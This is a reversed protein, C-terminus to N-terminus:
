REEGGDTAVSGDRVAADPRPPRARQTTSPEPDEDPGLSRATNGVVLLSSTAMAVAALLPTIVGLVAAPVAVANYCFAWALNERVRRRTAALTDLARDVAALDRGVLVADAADAALETGSAVAIGLDAAALAPADNSGDGVMAVTGEPRLRRVTETKGAPPLGAYVEDIGSAERFRDAAAGEDGTLVVVRRDESLRAVADQWGPRPEDAAVLVGRVAGDCGVYMALNGGEDADIYRERLAEPVEVDEFLSADGVTVRPGGEVEGSVGRGPHAEYGDVSADAGSNAADVVASAVPHDSRAEVAAARALLTERDVGPATEVGQLAMEGTTLTGTKDLAIVDVQQATEVASGDTLVVGDELLSRTGAAIALPTALGLACPCSVVLVALGTLLAETLTAGLLLHGAFALLGLVLVVPVFVTALADALRQPAGEGRVDWLLSVVRDLTREAGDAARIVLRGDTVVTGGRVDDGPDHRVPISEGTVLSEDVAATGEIVEGDVPLRKGARVVLEDGGSVAEVPVTETGNQAGNKTRRRAESVRDRTLDTLEGVARRKVREEYYSGVTVALVVVITVDFYVDVGGSLVALASYLYATTAALAVLLDMNPQRTRVAVYAGRLIPKGTYGLVITASLWVNALLFRGDGGQIDFLLMEPPLGLYTPYLFMVYWLMAMMGFLGGVLLRGVTADDDSDPEEASAQYGVGSVAEAVGDVTAEEPDYQLRMAGAPYNADAAAVGECDTARRELFAECSACHMGDVRLYVTEADGPIDASDAVSERAEEPDAAAPDDLNRAVELCGRCCFQGDISEATLPPDPTELGCLTCDTM